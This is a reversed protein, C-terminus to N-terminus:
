SRSLTTRYSLASLRPCVPPTSPSPSRARMQTRHPPVSVPPTLRKRAERLARREDVLQHYDPIPQANIRAHTAAAIEGSDLYYIDDADVVLPPLPLM